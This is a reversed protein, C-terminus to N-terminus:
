DIDKVQSTRVLNKVSVKESMDNGTYFFFLKVLRLIDQSSIATLHLVYM